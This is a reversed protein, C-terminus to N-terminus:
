KLYKLGFIPAFTLANQVNQTTQKVFGFLIQALEQLQVYQGTVAGHQYNIRLAQMKTRLPQVHAVQALFRRAAFM